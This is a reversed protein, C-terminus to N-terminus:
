TTKLVKFKDFHASCLTKYGHRTPKGGCPEEKCGDIDCLIIFHEIEKCNPCGCISFSPIFPNKGILIDDDSFMHDCMDCRYRQTM